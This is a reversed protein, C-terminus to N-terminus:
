VKDKELVHSIIMATRIGDGVALSTQRYAENIVDGIFFLRNDRVLQDQAEIISKDAFSFEPIRGIATILYDCEFFLEHDAQKAVVAIKTGQVIAASSVESDPYYSISKNNKVQEWLLTLGKIRSSRNLLIVQNHRSLNLAYDLAADGSGIILINKRKENLLPAVETFVKDALQDSFIKGPLKIAATGTAAVLRDTSYERRNTKLIFLGDRYAASNVEELTIRVGLRQAQDRFLKALDPGSIGNVFGPYNEVWNANWLLGGVRNRELVLPSIGQRNLQMAAALGAPGAGIIVVPHIEM